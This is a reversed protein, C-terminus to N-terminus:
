AARRRARDFQHLGSLSRAHRYVEVTRRAMRAVTYQSAAQQAARRMRDLSAFSSVIAAAIERPAADPPVIRGSVSDTVLRSNDGVDTVVPVCGANMAELLANSTGERESALVFVDSTSLLGSADEIEGLFRVNPPAERELMARLPGDGAIRFRVGPLLRAAALIRDVRKQPVLRSATCVAPPQGAERPPFTRQEIGNPIVTIRSAPVGSRRTLDAGAHSNSIVASWFPVALREILRYALPKWDDVNRVSAVVPVSGATFAGLINASPLWCHLLDPRQRVVERRLRWPALPGAVPAELCRVGIGIQRLKEEWCGGPQFVAVHHEIEGSTERCLLYLQREAGGRALSGIVHLVKM